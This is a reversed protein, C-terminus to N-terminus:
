ILSMSNMGEDSAWLTLNDRLLQMILTSDKYSDENLQDLDSIACDFAEKALKCAEDPRNQIEYYFVSFNLALGLLIPHTAALPGEKAKTQAEKYAEQAEQCVVDRDKETAIEAKYRCYDGKRNFSFM